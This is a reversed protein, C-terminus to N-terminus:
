SEIGARKNTPRDHELDALVNEVASCKPPRALHRDVSPKATGDSSLCDAFGRDVPM